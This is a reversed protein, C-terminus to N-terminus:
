TSRRAVTAGTRARSPRYSTWGVREGMELSRNVICFRAFSRFLPPFIPMPPSQSEITGLDETPVFLNLLYSPLFGGWQHTSM